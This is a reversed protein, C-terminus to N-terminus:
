LLKHIERIYIGTVRICLVYYLFESLLLTAM